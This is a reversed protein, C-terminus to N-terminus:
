AFQMIQNGMEESDCFHKLSIDIFKSFIAGFELEDMEAFSISRPVYIMKGKTTIHEMFHGAKLKYEVLLDDMNSYTNQNDLVMKLLAMAKKHFQYNRKPKWEFQIESGNKIKNMIEIQDDDVVMLINGQKVAEILM